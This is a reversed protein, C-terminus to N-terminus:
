VVNGFVEFNTLFEGSRTTNEVRKKTNPFTTLCDKTNSINSRVLIQDIELKFKIEYPIKNAM